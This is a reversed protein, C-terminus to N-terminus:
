TEFFEQKGFGYKGFEYIYLFVHLNTLGNKSRKVGRSTEPAENARGEPVKPPSNSIKAHRQSAKQGGKSGFQAGHAFLYIFLPSLYKPSPEKSHKKKHVNSM